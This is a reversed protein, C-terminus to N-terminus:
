PIEPPFIPGGASDKPIEFIERMRHLDLVGYLHPFKDGGRSVEWKLRDGVEAVAIVALVPNDEGAFHKSFTTRVQHAASLHIFGDRRDDPSGLFVGAKEAEEWEGRRFLKYIFIEM